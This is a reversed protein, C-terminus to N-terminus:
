RIVAQPMGSVSSHARWRRRYAWATPRTVPMAEVRRAWEVQAARAQQLCHASFSASSASPDGGRGAETALFSAELADRERIFAASRAPYDALVARHLREGEWWLVAPDYRAGPEPGLGAAVEPWSDVTSGDLCFPKFLGLCPASTGTLWYVATRDPRLHAVLSGTTQSGRILDNGYHMCIDGNSGAAPTYPRDAATSGTSAHSRLLAMMDAVTVRGAHARLGAETHPQRARCQSFRTYLFDSYCRAFDFDDRGQCWGRKVAYSVLDPSALDFANRITLGNSISAVGTVRRAAWHRDVTELVWASTRDAILFSNHYFFAHRYGGSGGQGHTELLSTIVDLAADATSARELGLRLLDMGTLGTKPVRVKAFVAENGIVVGHENAGMEAGRMWFPRSLLVACTERVQPIAFYTCQVTAGSPHQQRPYFCIAQAENPERDSNKAFLTSGDSTASPLAVLTDCM